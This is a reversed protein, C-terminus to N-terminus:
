PSPLLLAVVQVIDRGGTSINALIFQYAWERALDDVTCILQSADPVKLCVVRFVGAESFRHSAIKVLMRGFLYYQERSEPFCQVIKTLAETCVPDNSDDHM